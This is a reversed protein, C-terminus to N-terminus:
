EAWWSRRSGAVSLESVLVQRAQVPASSDLNSRLRRRLRAVFALIGPAAVGLFTWNFSPDPTM